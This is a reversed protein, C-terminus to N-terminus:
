VRSQCRCPAVVLIRSNARRLVPTTPAPRHGGFSGAPNPHRKAHLRRFSRGGMHWGSWSGQAGSARAQVADELAQPRTVVHNPFHVAELVVLWQQLREAALRSAEPAAEDVEAESRVRREQRRARLSLNVGEIGLVPELPKESADEIHDFALPHAGKVDEVAQRVQRCVPEAVPHQAVEEHDCARVQVLQVRDGIERQQFVLM